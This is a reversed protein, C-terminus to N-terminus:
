MLVVLNVRRNEARHERTDNDVLPATEGYSIVSMRHLPIGHEMNLYRRVAEARREGLALNATEPGSSDTHGQVEIYINKNENKLQSAFEDLAVKSNDTLESKEFDFTVKDSNLVVEYLLKGEALKGAAKARELADMATGSVKEIEVGQATLAKDHNELRNQADEIQTELATVQEDMKTAVGSTENRVYKKTACGTTAGMVILSAAIGVAAGTIRM